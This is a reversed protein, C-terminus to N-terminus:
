ETETREGRFARQETEPIREWVWSSYPNEYWVLRHTLGCRQCVRLTFARNVYEWEQTLVIFLHECQSEM